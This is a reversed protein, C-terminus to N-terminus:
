RASITIQQGQHQIRADLLSSLTQLLSNEDQLLLTGSIEQSALQPDTITFRIGYYEELHKCVESLSERVFIYRHNLWATHYTPNVTVLSLQKTTASYQALDSPKMLRSEKTGEVSLRVKGSQLMVATRDSKTKVNFETGLVEVNVKDAQVTFRYAGKNSEIHRINFFGEGKLSVKRNENSWNKPYELSSNANLTVLSHDPLEFTKVERFTTALRISAPAQLSTYLLGLGAAIIVVAAVKLWTALRIVRPSGAKAVGNSISNDIGAKLSGYFSEPLENNGSQFMRFASLALEIKERQASDAMLAKWFGDREAGPYKVWDIFDPDTLYDEVEFRSYDKM